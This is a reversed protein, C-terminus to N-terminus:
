REITRSLQCPRRSLVEILAAKAARTDVQPVYSSSLYAGVRNWEAIGFRESETRLLAHLCLDPRRQLDSVRVPSSRLALYDLLGIEIM